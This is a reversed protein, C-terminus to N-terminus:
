KKSRPRFFWQFLVTVAPGAFVLLLVALVFLGTLGLGLWFLPNSFLDALFGVPNYIDFIPTHPNLSPIDGTKFYVTWKGVMFIYVFFHLWASPYAYCHYGWEYWNTAQFQLLSVRMWYETRFIEPDLIRGQYQLLTQENITRNDPGGGRLYYIGPTEGQAKPILDQVRADGGAWKVDEALGLYAPAFYVEDPNGLFYAFNRPELKLWLQASEYKGWSEAEAGALWINISWDCKYRYMEFQSYEDFISGNPFTTSGSKVQWSYQLPLVDSQVTVPQQSGCLDPYGDGRQDPDFDMSYGFALSSPNTGMPYESLSWYGAQTFPYAWYFSDFTTELGQVASLYGGHTQLTILYPAAALIAGTAILILAIVILEKKLKM